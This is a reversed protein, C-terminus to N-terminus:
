VYTMYRSCYGYTVLSSSYNPLSNCGYFMYKGSTVSVTSWKSSSVKITTLESCYRFMYDMNEVRSTNFNSLDITSLESCGQFM